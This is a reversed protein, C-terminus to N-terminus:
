TGCVKKAVKRRTASAQRQIRHSCLENILARVDKEWPYPTRKSPDYYPVKPLEVDLYALLERVRDLYYRHVYPEGDAVARRHARQAQEIARDREGLANWLDAVALASLGGRKSLREAEGRADFVEGARFRALALLAECRADERGVQRAMRAAEALSEAACAPKNRILHWEGRLTHLGEIVVRNRGVNALAEAQVLVEETLEGRYFLDNARWYEADGPRYSARDWDRGM